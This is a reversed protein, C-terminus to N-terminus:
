VTVRVQLDRIGTHKKLKKLASFSCTLYNHGIIFLEKTNEKRKVTGMKGIQQM